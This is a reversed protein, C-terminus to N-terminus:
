RLLTVSGTMRQPQDSLEFTILYAYTGNSAQNGGWSGDWGQSPDGATLATASYVTNGWRDFIQLTYEGVVRAPFYFRRNGPNM